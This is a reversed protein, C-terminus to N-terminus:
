KKCCGHDGKAGTSDSASCEVKMEKNMKGKMGKASKKAEAVAPKEAKKEEQQAFGYGASVVCVALVLIKIFRM